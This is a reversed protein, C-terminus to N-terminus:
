SHLISFSVLGVCFMGSYSKSMMSIMLSPNRWISPTFPINIATNPYLSGSLIQVGLTGADSDQIELLATNYNLYCIDVGDTNFGQTNLLINVSFIDGTDYLGSSPSLKLTAAHAFSATFLFFCLFLLFFIKTNNM